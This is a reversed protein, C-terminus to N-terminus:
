SVSHLGMSPVSVGVMEVLFITDAHDAGDATMFVLLLYLWLGRQCRSGMCSNAIFLAPLGTLAVSIGVMEALCIMDAHEAGDTTSFDLLLYL